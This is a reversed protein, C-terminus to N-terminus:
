TKEVKNPFNKNLFSYGDILNKFEKQGKLKGKLFWSVSSGDEKHTLLVIDTKNDSLVHYIENFPFANM